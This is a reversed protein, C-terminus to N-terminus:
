RERKPYVRRARRCMNNASQWAITNRLQESGSALDCEQVYDVLSQCAALLDPMEQVNLTDDGDHLVIVSNDSNYLHITQMLVAHIPPEKKSQFETVKRVRELLKIACRKNAPMM